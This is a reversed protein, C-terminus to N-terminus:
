YPDYGASDGHIPVPRHKGAPFLDAPPVETAQDLSGLYRAFCRAVRMRRALYAASGTTAITTWTVALSTKVTAAGADELFGVFDDLLRGEGILKYGLARRVSLYDESHRRLDNM